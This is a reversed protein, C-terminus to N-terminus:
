KSTEKEFSLKNFFPFQEQAIKVNQPTTPIENKRLYDLITKLKYAMNKEEIRKEVEEKGNTNTSM